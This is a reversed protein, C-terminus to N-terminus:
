MCVEEIESYAGREVYELFMYLLRKDCYVYTYNHTHVHVDTVITIGM